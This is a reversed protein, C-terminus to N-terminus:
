DLRIRHFSGWFQITRNTKVECQYRSFCDESEGPVKIPSEWTSLGCLPQLACSRSLLDPTDCICCLVRQPQSSSFLVWVEAIASPFLILRNLWHFDIPRRLYYRSSSSQSPSTDINSTSSYFSVTEWVQKSRIQYERLQEALDLRSRSKMSDVNEEM